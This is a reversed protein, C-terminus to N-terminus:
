AISGRCELQTAPPLDNCAKINYIKLVIGLITQYDSISKHSSISLKRSSDKQEGLYKNNKGCFHIGKLTSMM